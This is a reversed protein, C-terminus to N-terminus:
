VRYKGEFVQKLWLEFTLALCLENHYDSKKEMHNRTYTHIKNKDIFEAYMADKSLLVKEFFSRSPEQRAWSAYDTYIRLDKFHIGFRQSERNIKHLIRIKLKMLDILWNPYSIPCGTKQWPITRYYDPFTKLLMKNYIYSNYRLLDPLSYIFDILTNDWFPLRVEILKAILILGSITFRRVRNNIFYPDTKNIMYWDNFNSIAMASRTVDKIILSDIKKDLHSKRLYSGGLAIDGAFGNLNLDIYSKYEDHFEMGHMHLLSCSSDSKWVGNIRAMLWNNANLLLTHHRAGKIKSVKRAIKIDDCGEQGFTFAHLPKYDVPVAALIARSDLGGSLNVGIRENNNVRNRVAKKLLRGLEEVIEREDIPGKMTRIESWSWYHQIEVKSKKLDFTLVSAPPMLEIDEFWTRNELLYGINFFEQVAQSDIVPTFNIHGLFGKLESSWVLNDNVTGWYLPKFGYRDTILYIKNEKKDYLAATYYGDIDRLFKFSRTSHYITVFLENDIASAIKYKSRLEEQNYFEGEMWSFFREDLIYPQNGQDLIDLHTRSAYINEDCFLDDDVYSDSYKLLSRMNLLMDCSHKHHKDTFGVMGPM